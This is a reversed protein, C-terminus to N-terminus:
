KELHKRVAAVSNGVAYVAAILNVISCNLEKAWRNLEESERFNIKIDDLSESAPRYESAKLDEKANM